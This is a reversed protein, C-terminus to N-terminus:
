KKLFNSCINLMKNLGAIGTSFLTINNTNNNTRVYLNRVDVVLIHNSWCLCLTISIFHLYYHLYIGDKDWETHCESKNRLLFLYCNNLKGTCVHVINIERLYIIVKTDYIFDTKSVHCIHPKDGTHRMAHSKLTSPAHFEKQCLECTYIQFFIYIIKSKDSLLSQLLKDTFFNKM